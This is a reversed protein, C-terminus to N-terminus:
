GRVSLEDETDMGGDGPPKSPRMAALYLFHKRSERAALCPCTGLNWDTGHM